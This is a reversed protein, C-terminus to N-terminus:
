TSVHASPTKTSRDMASWASPSGITAEDNGQNRFLKYDTNWDGTVFNVSGDADYDSYAVGMSRYPNEAWSRRSRPRVTATTISFSIPM